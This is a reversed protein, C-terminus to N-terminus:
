PCVGNFTGDYKGVSQLLLYGFAKTCWFLLDAVWCGRAGRFGVKDGFPVVRRSSPFLGCLSSCCGTGLKIALYVRSKGIATWSPHPIRSIRRLNGLVSLKTM